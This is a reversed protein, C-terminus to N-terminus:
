AVSEVVSRVMEPDPREVVPALAPGAIKKEYSCPLATPEEEAAGKKKRRKPLADLNNPCVLYTGKENVVELLYASECKPCTQN